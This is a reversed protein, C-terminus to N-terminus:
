KYDRKLSENKCDVIELFEWYMELISHCEKFYEDPAGSKFCIAAAANMLVGIAEPTNKVGEHLISFIQRIMADLREHEDKDEIAKPM